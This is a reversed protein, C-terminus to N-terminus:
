SKEEELKENYKFCADIFGVFLPHPRLPRSTLEPHFQCAIFFPHTTLEIIEVLNKDMCIGSIKMNAMELRNRFANNLEYRHRHRESIIEKNYLKSALTGQSIKFSFAGLRMTAGKENLDKQEPMLGIVPYPTTPDFESSNANTLRLFNRAYDIVAVQLGLCIGLFPINKERAYKVARIMGEIGRKGFGGPILIGHLGNLVENPDNIELSEAPIWKINVKVKTSVQAHKLAEVLSIYADCMSTYKGIIGINVSRTLNNITNVMEEWEDFNANLDPLGWLELLTKSLGEKENMLPVEYINEADVVSFIREKKVDCFLSIKEAIVDSIEKDSRCAIIDPQIGVRRLEAVSHQTPKTKLEGTAKLHPLYTLHLFLVDHPPNEMRFERIAELFPLGEIDGVTGGIEGIIIDPEVAEKLQYIRQKIENTLHPITQVTAGLFDGRREKAVLQSYVSGATVNNLRSLNEDLFREYHGLDLDTEAGDDTVFVEGHQYPNQLGADVNLYPDFKIISVKFGRAKLTRGISSTLIGKGLSSMVGGTVFIYKTGMKLGGINEVM